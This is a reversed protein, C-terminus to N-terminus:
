PGPSRNAPRLEHILRRSSKGIANEPEIFEKRYPAAINRVATLSLQPRTCGIPGFIRQKGGSVAYRLTVRGWSKYLGQCRRRWGKAALGYSGCFCSNEAPAEQM